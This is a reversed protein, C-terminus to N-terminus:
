GGLECYSGNVFDGEVGSLSRGNAVSEGFGDVVIKEIPDDLPDVNRHLRFSGRRM